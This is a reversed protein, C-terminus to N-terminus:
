GNESHSSQTPTAAAETAADDKGEFHHNLASVFATSCADFDSIRMARIAAEADGLVTLHRIALVATSVELGILRRQFEALSPHGMATSLAALRGMEAAIVLDVSGIRLAVEGRAGNVPLDAM